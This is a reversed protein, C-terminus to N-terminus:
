TPTWARRLRGAMEEPERPLAADSGEHDVVSDIRVFLEPPHYRNMADRLGHPQAHYIYTDGFVPDMPPLCPYNRMCKCFAAMVLVRASESHDEMYDNYSPILMIYPNIQRIRGCVLRTLSNHYHVDLDHVLGPHYTAGILEAAKTSEERRVRIATEADMEATGCDGQCITMIHPEFGADRLLILTGAMGFEVDDPHAGVALVRCKEAM